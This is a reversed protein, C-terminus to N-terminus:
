SILNAVIFDKDHGAHSYVTAPNPITPLIPQGVAQGSARRYVFGAPQTINMDLMIATQAHVLVMAAGMQASTVAHGYVYILSGDALEGLSSRNSVHRNHDVWGWASNSDQPSTQSVYNAVLPRMNQRVVELGHVTNLEKGWTIVSLRGSSDVVLSALGPRMARVMVGRYYYGGVHDRLKFAGNFAAALNRVWTTSNRDASKVPGGEPFLYGPIFRFRLMAPNLWLFALSRDTSVAVYTASRGALAGTAINWSLTPVSPPTLTLPQGSHNIVAPSSASSTGNAGPATTRATIDGSVSQPADQNTCAATMGVSLLLCVAIVRFRM